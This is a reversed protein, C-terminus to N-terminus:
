YRAEKRGEALGDLYAQSIAENAEYSDINNYDSGFGNSNVYEEALKEEDTM